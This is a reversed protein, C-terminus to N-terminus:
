TWYMWFYLGLLLAAVGSINMWLDWAPTREDPLGELSGGSSTLQWVLDKVFLNFLGVIFLLVAVATMM